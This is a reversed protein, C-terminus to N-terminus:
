SLVWILASGLALLAAAGADTRHQAVPLPAWTPTKPAPLPRPRPVPQVRETPRPPAPLPQPTRPPETPGPSAELYAVPDLRPAESDQPYARPSVEFHLHSGSCLASPDDRRFCTRGVTGIQAGAGIRQGPVVQARDLHAYLFWPGRAGARIM